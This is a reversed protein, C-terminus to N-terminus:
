AQRRAEKRKWSNSGMYDDSKVGFQELPIKAYSPQGKKGKRSVIASVKKIVVQEEPTGSESTYPKKSDRHKNTGNQRAESKGKRRQAELREAKEARAVANRKAQVYEYIDDDYDYCEMRFDKYPQWGIIRRDFVADGISRIVIQRPVSEKAFSGYIIKVDDIRIQKDAMRNMRTLMDNRVISVGLITAAEFIRAYKAFNVFDIRSLGTGECSKLMWNFIAIFAPKVGGYVTASTKGDCGLRSAHHQDPPPFCDKLMTSFHTVVDKPIEDYLM